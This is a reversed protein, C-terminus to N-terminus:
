SNIRNRDLSIPTGRLATAIVLPVVALRLRTLTSPMASDSTNPASPSQAQSM